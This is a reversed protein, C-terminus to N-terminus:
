DEKLEEKIEEFQSTLSMVDTRSHFPLNIDESVDNLLYMIRAIRVDAEESEEELEKKAQKIKEKVNRPVDRDKIISDMDEVLYKMKEQIEKKM